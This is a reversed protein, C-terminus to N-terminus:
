HCHHLPPWIQMHPTELHIKKSRLSLNWMVAKGWDMQHLLQHCSTPIRGNRPKQCYDWYTWKGCSFLGLPAWAISTTLFPAHFMPFIKADGAGRQLTSPIPGSHWGSTTSVYWKPQLLADKSTSAMSGKMFNKCSMTKKNTTWVNSYLHQWDDKSYSAM